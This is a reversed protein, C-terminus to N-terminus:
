FNSVQNGHFSSLQQIMNPLLQGTRNLTVNRNQQQLLSNQAAAAQMMSLLTNPSSLLGIQAAMVAPNLLSGFSAPVASSVQNLGPRASFASQVPKCDTKQYPRLVNGSVISDLFSPETNHSPSSTTPSSLTEGASSCVASINGLTEQMWWVLGILLQPVKCSAKLLM